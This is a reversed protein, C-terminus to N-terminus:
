DATDPFLQYHQFAAQLVAGPEGRELATEASKQLTADRLDPLGLRLAATLLRDYFYGAEFIGSPPDVKLLQWVTERAWDRDQDTQETRALDAAVRARFQDRGDNRLHREARKILTMRTKPDIELLVIDAWLGADADGRELLRAARKADGIEAYAGALTDLANIRTSRDEVARLRKEASQLVARFEEDSTGFHQHSQILARMEPGNPDIETQQLAMAEEAIKKEGIETATRIVWVLDFARDRPTAQRLARDYMEQLFFRAQAPDDSLRALDALWWSSIRDMGQYIEWVREPGLLRIMPQSLNSRTSNDVPLNQLLARAAAEEGAALLIDAAVIRDFRTGGTDALASRLIARVEPELPREVRLRSGTRMMGVKQMLASQALFGQPGAKVTALDAGAAFAEIMRYQAVRLGVFQDANKGSLGKFQAMRRALAEADEVRGMQGLYDVVMPQDNLTDSALAMAYGIDALCDSSPAARCAALEAEPVDAWLPLAFILAITCSIRKM